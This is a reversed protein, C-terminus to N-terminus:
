RFFSATPWRLTSHGRTRSSQFLLRPTFALGSSFFCPPPPRYASSPPLTFVERAVSRMVFYGDPFPLKRADFRSRKRGFFPLTCEAQLDHTSPPPSKKRRQSCSPILLTSVEELAVPQSDSDASNARLLKLPPLATTAPRISRKKPETNSRRDFFFMRSEDKHFLFSSSPSSIEFAIELYSSPIEALTVSRMLEAVSPTPLSTCRMRSFFIINLSSLCFLMQPGALSQRRDVHSPPPSKTWLLADKGGTECSPRSEVGVGKL